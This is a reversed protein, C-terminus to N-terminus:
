GCHASDLGNLAVGRATLQRGLATPPCCAVTPSGCRLGGSPAPAPPKPERGALCLVVRCLELGAEGKSKKKWLNMMVANSFKRMKNKNVKM